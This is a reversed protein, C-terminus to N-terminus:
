AQACLKAVRLCQCTSELYEVAGERAFGVLKTDNVHFLALYTHGPLQQQGQMAQVIEVRVRCVDSTSIKAM